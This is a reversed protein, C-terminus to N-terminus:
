FFTVAWSWSIPISILFLKFLAASHLHSVGILIICRPLFPTSKRQWVLSHVTRGGLFDNQKTPTHALTCYMQVMLFYLNKDNEAQIKIEAVQLTELYWTLSMNLNTLHLANKHVLNKRRYSLKSVYISPFVSKKEDNVVKLPM